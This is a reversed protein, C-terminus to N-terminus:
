RICTGIAMVIRVLHILRPARILLNVYHRALRAAAVTIKPLLRIKAVTGNVTTGGAALSSCSSGACSTIKARGAGLDGHSPKLCLLSLQM